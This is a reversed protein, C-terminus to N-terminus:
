SSVERPAPRLALAVLRPAIAQALMVGLLVTTLLSGGSGGYILNFSLALALAVSGQHVTALGPHTDGDWMVAVWRAAVRIAGLVLVAPVIWPTPLDLSAGIVVLLLAYIPAEIRAITAEIQQRQASIKVVVAV